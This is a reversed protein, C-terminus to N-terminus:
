RVQLLTDNRLQENKGQIGDNGGAVEVFYDYKKLFSDQIGTKSTIPIAIDAALMAALAKVFTSSFKTVDTIRAIYRCYMYETSALVYNEERVWDLDYFRFQKDDSAQIIRMCDAPLVFKTTYEFDPVEPSRNLEARKTAFTWNRAELTADRAANFNASCLRAEVSDDSFSSILNAGLWGLALNCIAVESDYAM